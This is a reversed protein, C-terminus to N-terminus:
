CISHLQSIFTHLKTKGKPVKLNLYFYELFTYYNTLSKTYEMNFVFFSALLIFSGKKIDTVKSFVQKEIVLFADKPAALSGRIVLMPQPINVDLIGKM